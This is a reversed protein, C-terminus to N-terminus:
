FCSSIGVPLVVVEEQVRQGEGNDKLIFEKFFFKKENEGIEEGGMRELVCGLRAKVEVM